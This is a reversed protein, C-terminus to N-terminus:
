KYRAQLDRLVEDGDLASSPDAEHEAVRRELEDQLEKAIRLNAADAAISDWLDSVLQIREEVSLKFLERIDNM